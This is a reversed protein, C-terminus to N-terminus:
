SEFMNESILDAKLVDDDDDDLIVSSTTTNISTATCPLKRDLQPKVKEPGKLVFSSSLSAESPKLLQLCTRIHELKSQFTELSLKLIQKSKEQEESQMASMYADLPDGGDSPAQSLSLPMTSSELSQLITQIEQLVIQEKKQLSEYTEELDEKGVEERHVDSEDDLVLLNKRKRKYQQSSHEMSASITSSATTRDFFEDEEDFLQADNGLEAEIRLRKRSEHYEKEDEDEEEEEEEKQEESSDGKDDDELEIDGGNIIGIANSSSTSSGGGGGGQQIISSKKLIDGGNDALMQNKRLLRAQAEKTATEQIANQLDLLEFARPDQSGLIYLRSSEGFRLVDGLRLPVYVFPRIQRQNWYTHHVSGLDYIYLRGGNQGRHQIVAHQRSISAHDLVFGKTAFEENRGFVIYEMDMPLSLINIVEGNKVVELHYEISPKSSWLPIEYSKKM